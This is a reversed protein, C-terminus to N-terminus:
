LRKQEIKHCVFCNEHRFLKKHLMFKGTRWVLNNIEKILENVFNKVQLDANKSDTTGTLRERKEEM